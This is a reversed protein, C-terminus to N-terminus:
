EEVPPRPEPTPPALHQVKARARLEKRAKDRAAEVSGRELDSLVAAKVTDFAVEPEEKREVVEIIWYREKPGRIVASVEGPKLDYAIKRWQEPLKYWSMWGLDWPTQGPPRDPFLSAAVDEFRKGSDLQRRVEAMSAESRRLIQRVHLQTRIQKQNADFFRRADADTPAANKDVSREWLLETLGRRRYAAVQAELQRLGAQYRPDADLGLETARQAALEEGIVTELVTGLQQASAPAAHKEKHGEGKLRFRVDVQTIPKGNVTAVVDKQEVGAKATATSTAGHGTTSADGSPKGCALALMALPLLLTRIPNM